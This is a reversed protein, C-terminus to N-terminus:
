KFAQCKVAPSIKYKKFGAGKRAGKKQLPFSATPMLPNCPQSASGPTTRPNNDLDALLAKKSILLDKFLKDLTSEIYRKLVASDTLDIESFEKFVNPMLFAPLAICSFAQHLLLRIENKNAPACKPHLKGCVLTLFENLKKVGLGSYDGKLFVDMFFFKTMNPFNAVGDALQFLIEALQKKPAYNDTYAFDEWRFANQLVTELVTEILKDKSRFYYNIASINVGAEKSILRNTVKDIGYKEICNITTEVIKMETNDM